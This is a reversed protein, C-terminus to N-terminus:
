TLVVPKGDFTLSDNKFVVVDLNEFILFLEGEHVGIIHIKKGVTEEEEDDAFPSPYIEVEGAKGIQLKHIRQEPNSEDEPDTEMTMTFNDYSKFITGVLLNNLYQLTLTTVESLSPDPM